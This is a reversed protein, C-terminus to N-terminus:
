RNQLKRVIQEFVSESSSASSIVYVSSYKYFHESVDDPSEVIFADKGKDKAIRTLENANSSHSSGVVILADVDDIHNIVDRQRNLCDMCIESKVDVSDFHENLTEIFELAIKRPFTTQTHVVVSQADKHNKIFADLDGKSQIIHLKEDSINNILTVVESHTTNKVFLVVCAGDKVDKSIDSKRKSVVPCTGDIVDKFNKNFFNIADDTAGHAAILLPSKSDGPTIEGIIKVGRDECSKQVLTNHVIEGTLFVPSGGMLAEDLLKLSRKVGNCFGSHKSTIVQM